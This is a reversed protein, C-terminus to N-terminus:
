PRFLERAVVISRESKRIVWKVILFSKAQPRLRQSALSTTVFGRHSLGESGANAFKRCVRRRITVPVPLQGGENPEQGHGFRASRSTAGGRDFSQWTANGICNGGADAWPKEDLVRGRDFSASKRGSRTPHACGISRVVVSLSLSACRYRYQGRKVTNGACRM